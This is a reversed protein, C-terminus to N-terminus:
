PALRVLVRGRFQNSLMRQAYDPLQPLTIEAHTIGELQPTKMHEALGQWIVQRWAMPCNASSIGLLSVGRLIYPMVTAHVESGAALGISAINGWSTVTRTLWDLIHGGLTDIAGGWCVSELPRLSQPVASAEFIEDAGLGHLYEENEACSTFATVTYGAKKLLLISLSGVGGSAGTVIVPGLDPHQHNEQMRRLALAATFGATGLLMSDRISLGSPLPVVWDAPVKLYEAFGGDRDEGIGCGTVLVADGEAFRSDMSASITGTADIGPVLPFRRLIRGKNTVALADKYNLSSYAVKICVEGAAPSMAPLEVIGGHMEGNDKRSMCFAQYVTDM